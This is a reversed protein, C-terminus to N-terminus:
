SKYSNGGGMCLREYTIAYIDKIDKHDDSINQEFAIELECIGTTSRYLKSIKSITEEDLKIAHENNNTRLWYEIEYINMSSGVIINSIMGIYSGDKEVVCFYEYKKDYYYNWVLEQYNLEEISVIKVKTIFTKKM